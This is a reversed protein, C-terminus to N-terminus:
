RDYTSSVFNGNALVYHFFAQHYYQDKNECPIEDRWHPRERGKYIVGDGPNLIVSHEEENPTQIAFSWPTKINTSVHISVSIECADRDVHKDLKQECFYFREYYYTNYLEDGLIKELKIRIQSHDYKKRPDNYISLSGPVQSAPEFVFKTPSTYRKTVREESPEEIFSSIDYLDRVILYGNREFDSNKTQTQTEM